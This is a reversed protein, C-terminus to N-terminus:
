FPPLGAASRASNALQKIENDSYGNRTMRHAIRSVKRVSQTLTNIRPSYARALLRYYVPCTQRKINM